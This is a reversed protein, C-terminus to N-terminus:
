FIQKHCFRAITPRITNLAYKSAMYMDHQFQFAKNANSVNEPKNVLKDAENSCYMTVSLCVFMSGYWM